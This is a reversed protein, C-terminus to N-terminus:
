EPELFSEIRIGPSTCQDPHEEIWRECAERDFDGDFLIKVRGTPIPLGNDDYEDSLIDDVVCYTMMERM